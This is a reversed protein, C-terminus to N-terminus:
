VASTTGADEAPFDIGLDELAVYHWPYAETIAFAVDSLAVAMSTMDDAHEERYRDAIMRRPVILTTHAPDLPLNDIEIRWEREWTWDGNRKAPEYKVYRYKMSAPLEDYESGEGYIVPRGGKAYLWDKSVMVGFPQYRMASPDAAMAQALMTVPAETFCVVTHKGRIDRSSGRLQKERLISDFVQDVTMDANGRTLHILRNSLDGRIM